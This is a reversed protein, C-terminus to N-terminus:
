KPEACHNITITSHYGHNPRRQRQEQINQYRFRDHHPPPPPPLLHAASRWGRLTKYSNTAPRNHGHSSVVLHDAGVIVTVVDTARNAVPRVIQHHTTPHAVMGGGVRRWRTAHPRHWGTAVVRHQRM